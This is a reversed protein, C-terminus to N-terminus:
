YTSWRKVMPSSNSVAITILTGYIVAAEISWARTHHVSLNWLIFYIAYIM